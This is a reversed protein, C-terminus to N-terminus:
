ARRTLQPLSWATGPLRCRSRWARRVGLGLARVLRELSDRRPVALARELDQISRASLGAREALQEQTLERARRHQRVLQALAEHV